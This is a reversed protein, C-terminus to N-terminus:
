NLKALIAECIQGVTRFSEIENSKFRISYKKEIAVVFQLHNLSDWNELDNTSTALTINDGDEEMIETFIPRLEVLLDEQTM